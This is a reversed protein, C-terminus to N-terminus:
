DDNMAERLEELSATNGEEIDEIGGEVRGLVSNRHEDPWDMHVGDLCTPCVWEDYWPEDQDPEIDSNGLEKSLRIQEDTLSDYLVLDEGCDCEADIYYPEDNPRPDIASTPKETM